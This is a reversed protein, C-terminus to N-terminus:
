SRGTRGAEPPPAKITWSCVYDPDVVVEGTTRLRYEGPKAPQLSEVDPPLSFEGEENAQDFFIGEDTIRTITGHLQLQETVQDDHDVYTLGVLVHKGIYDDHAM